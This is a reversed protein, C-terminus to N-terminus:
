KKTPACVTRGRTLNRIREYPRTDEGARRYPKKGNRLPPGTHGGAPRHPCRGRRFSLFRVRQAGQLFLVFLILPRGFAARECEGM